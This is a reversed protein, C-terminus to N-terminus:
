PLWVSVEDPMYCKEEKFSKIGNKINDHLTDLTIQGETKPICIILNADSELTTLIYV